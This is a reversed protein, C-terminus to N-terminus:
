QLMRKLEPSVDAIQLEGGIPKCVAIKNNHSLVDLVYEIILKPRGLSERIDASNTMEDNVIRPGVATFLSDIDQIYAKGYEHFGYLSITFGLIRDDGKWGEIFGHQDLIRLSDEMDQRSIDAPEARQWVREPNSAVDGEEIADECALKLIVSDIRALSPIGVVEIESHAPVEGLEPKDSLGFIASVIQGLESDYNSLNKIRVHYTSQLAVPIDCDDIVVPILRTQSQVRRVFGAKMEERVWPKDVSKNSLVVILAEASGIGEEFIKDILNDGPKMEWEAYWADVGKGILRRAFDTVFRNKDESAHSVFVKPHVPM